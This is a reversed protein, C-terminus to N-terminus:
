WGFTNQEINSFLKYINDGTLDDFYKKLEFFKKWKILTWEPMGHRLVVDVLRKEMLVVGTPLSIADCLQILKDYDNYPKSILFSQLFNLDKKSCDFQGHYTNVDTIPFSHTLCIRAADDYGLELMYRYGDFIHSIHKWGERRGIDHLLGFVYATKPNLEKCQLAIIEATSAVAQSHEVWPGPNMSRAEELLVKAQEITPIKM